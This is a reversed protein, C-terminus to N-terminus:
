FRRAVTSLGYLNATVLYRSDSTNLVWAMLDKFGHTARDFAERNDRAWAWVLPAGYKFM